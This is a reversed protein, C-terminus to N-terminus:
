SAIAALVVRPADCSRSAHVTAGLAKKMAHITAGLAKKM